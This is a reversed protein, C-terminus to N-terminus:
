TTNWKECPFCSHAFQWTNHSDRTEKKNITPINIDNRFRHKTILITRASRNMVSVFCPCPKSNMARREKYAGGTHRINTSRDACICLSLLLQNHSLVVNALNMTRWLSVETKNTVSIKYMTWIRLSFYGYLKLASCAQHYPFPFFRYYHNRSLFCAGVGPLLYIDLEGKFLDHIGLTSTFYLEARDKVEGSSSTSPWNWAGAAKGGPFPSPLWQKLPQTPELALRSPQQFDRGWTTVIVPGDLGYRTAIGFVGVRGVEIGSRLIVDLNESAVSVV